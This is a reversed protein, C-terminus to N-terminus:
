EFESAGQYKQYNIITVISYRSDSEMSIMNKKEFYKMWRWVTDSSVCNSPKMGLNYDDALQERGTVLQGRRVKISKGDFFYNSDSHKADLLVMLWLKLKKPDLFVESDMIKQNIGVWGRGAM